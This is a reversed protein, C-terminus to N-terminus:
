PILVLKGIHAGREMEAHAARVEALPFTAAIHQRYVGRAFGELIERCGQPGATADQAVEHLLWGRISAHKRILPSVDVTGPKGLLGYVWITAHEALCRIETNLYEGSAVADFFVDIGRGDTISQIDKHWRTSTGDAGRTLVLHEYDSEAMAKIKDIKEASTTLGIPIAGAARAIQAAALAVGSSAASIGVYQGPRLQQKWILCGWATLYTLWFAGLQVNAIEDPVALVENEKVVYHTAYTGELGGNDTFRRPADPTLTVRDGVKHETVNAGIADVIGGGEIGPTFPPNGSSLKYEGRRAMLDAHNMGISTLAVRVQDDGPEPTPLEVLELTDVGGFERVVVKKM